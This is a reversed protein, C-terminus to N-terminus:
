VSREIVFDSYVRKLESAPVKQVETVDSHEPGRELYAEFKELTEPEGTALVEVRGNWLNRVWGALGLQRAKKQTYNRFGVGQVRGIVEYRRVENKHM